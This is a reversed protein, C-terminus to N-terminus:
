PLALRNEFTIGLKPNLEKITNHLSFCINSLVTISIQAENKEYLYRWEVFANSIAEIDKRLEPESTRYHKAMIKIASEPLADFQEILNHNKKVSIQTIHCLLKMYIELAFAYCVVAPAILTNRVNPSLRFDAECRSGAQFFANAQDIMDQEINEPTRRDPSQPWKVNFTFNMSM